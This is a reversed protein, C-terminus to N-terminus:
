LPPTLSAPAPAPAAYTKWFPRCARAYGLITEDQLGYADGVAGVPVARCQTWLATDLTEAAVIRGQIRVAEQGAYYEACGSLLWLSLALTVLRM